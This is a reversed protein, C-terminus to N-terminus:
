SLLLSSTRGSAVEFHFPSTASHDFAGTEFVPMRAVPDPTRIEGEGGFNPILLFPCLPTAGFARTHFSGCIFIIPFKQNQKAVEVNYKIVCISNFQVM